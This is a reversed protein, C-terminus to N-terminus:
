RRTKIPFPRNNPGRFQSYGPLVGGGGLCECGGNVGQWGLWKWLFVPGSQGLSPMEPGIGLGTNETVEGGGEDVTKSNKEPRKRQTFSM